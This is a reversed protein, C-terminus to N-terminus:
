VKFTSETLIPTPYKEYLSCEKLVDGEKEWEHSIHNPNVGTLEFIELYQKELLNAKQNEKM